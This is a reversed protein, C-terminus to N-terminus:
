VLRASIALIDSGAQCYKDGKLNGRAEAASFVAARGPLKIGKKKKIGGRGVDNTFWVPKLKIKLHAM